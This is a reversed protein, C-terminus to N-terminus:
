PKWPKDSVNSINSRESAISSRSSQKSAQTQSRSLRTGSDTPLLNKELQANLDEIDNNTFEERVDFRVMPGASPRTVSAASQGVPTEQRNTNMSQSRKVKTSPTQPTGSSTWSLPCSGTLLGHPFKRIAYKL